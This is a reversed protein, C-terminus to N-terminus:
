GEGGVPLSVLGDAMMVPADPDVIEPARLPLPVNGTVRDFSEIAAITTAATQVMRRRYEARAEDTDLMAADTASTLYTTVHEAWEDVSHQDDHALTYGEGGRHPDAQQRNREARVDAFVQQTAGIGAIGAAFAEEPTPKTADNVAARGDRIRGLLSPAVGRLGNPDKSAVEDFLPHWQEADSAGLETLAAAVTPWADVVAQERTPRPPRLARIREREAGREEPTMAAVRSQADALTRMHEAQADDRRLQEIEEDTPQTM